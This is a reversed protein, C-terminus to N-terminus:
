VPWQATLNEIPEQAQSNLQGLLTQSKSVLTLNLLLIYFDSFGIQFVMEAPMKHYLTLMKLKLLHSYKEKWLVHFRYTM